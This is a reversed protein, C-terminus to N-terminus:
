YGMYMWLKKMYINVAEKTWKRGSHFLYLLDSVERWDYCSTSDGRTNNYIFIIAAQVRESWSSYENFIDNPCNWILSELLFSSICNDKLFGDDEMKIKFRKFIRVMRKYRRQTNENKKKGNEIHRLPFNVVKSGDDAFLVMGEIYTKNGRYSRYLWTPVVDVEAHYTNEMVTLCKNKRKVNQRGFKAILAKEVDNKYEKYSYDCDNKFGFYNKDLGQPLDYYFADTYNVNIDIDSNLRINTDNAYSGQCFTKIGKSCLFNDLQLADKVIREANKLKENETNSPPKTWNILTEESFRM